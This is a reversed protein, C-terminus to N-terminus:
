LPDDDANPALLREPHHVDNVRTQGTDLAAPPIWAFRGDARRRTTWETTDILLNDPGCALTLDDINTQGNRKWDAVGHHAQTGYFPVDCGPATCGRDRAFLALKQDASACRKARGFHLTQGTHGDFVALYHHAGAAAMAILDRMPLRTGGATVAYGAAAELEAVTTTAVVTTPLGHLTGLTQSRLLMDLGAEIADHLYHAKTRWRTDLVPAAPPLPAAEAFPALELAAEPEPQPEPEAEAEDAPAEPEALSEPEPEVDVQPESEPEAEDAPPEPDDTPTEKHRDREAFKALVPELYARLKPSIWGSLYSTGDPQQKGLRLGVKRAVEEAPAEGDPHLLALLHIAAATLAVPDLTVAIEALTQEAQARTTPDVQAPLAKFFKRIVEVHEDGIVGRAHAAATHEWQPPVQEGQLTCRAILLRARKIRRHAEGKSMRCRLTLVKGLSTAGLTRPDAERDLRAVIAYGAMPVRRSATEIAAFADVLEGHSATDVGAALLADVGATYAAVAEALEISVYRVYM